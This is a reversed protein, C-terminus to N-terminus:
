PKNSHHWEHFHLPINENKPGNVTFLPHKKLSAMSMYNSYLKKLRCILKAGNYVTGTFGRPVFIM